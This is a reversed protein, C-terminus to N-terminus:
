TRQSNDIFGSIYTPNQKLTKMFCTSIGTDDPLYKYIHCKNNNKCMTQCDKQSIVFVPSEEINEIDGELITKGRYTSFMSNNLKFGLVTDDIIPGDFVDGKLEENEESNIGSKLECTENINNYEFWQCKNNSKCTNECTQQSDTNLLSVSYGPVNMNNVYLTNNKFSIFLVCVCMMCIICITLLNCSLLMKIIKWM